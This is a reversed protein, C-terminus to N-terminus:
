AGVEAVNTLSSLKPIKIEEVFQVIVNGIGEAGAAITEPSFFETSGKQMASLEEAIAPIGLERAAYYVGGDEGSKVPKYSTYSYIADDPYGIVNKWYPIVKGVGRLATRKAEAVMANDNLGVFMTVENVNGSNHVDLLLKTDAANERFWKRLARTEKQSFAAFDRNINVGNENTRSSGEGGTSSHDTGWPNVLPVVKFIVEEPINSPINRRAVLDEFFRYTSLIASRELGHMGSMVLIVPKRIDADLDGREGAVNYQGTSFIYERLGTASGDDDTLENWIPTLGEYLAYIDASKINLANPFEKRETSYFRNRAVPDCVEYETGDPATWNKMLPKSM